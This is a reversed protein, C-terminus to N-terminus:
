LPERKELLKMVIKRVARNKGNKYTNHGAGIIDVLGGESSWVMLGLENQIMNDIAYPPIYAQSHMCIYSYDAWEKHDLAQKIVGTHDFMKCEINVIKKPTIEVIIDSIRGIKRIGVERYVNDAPYWLDGGTPTHSLFQIALMRQAVADQMDYESDATGSNTKPLLNM